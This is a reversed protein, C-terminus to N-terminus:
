ISSATRFASILHFRSSFLTSSKNNACPCFSRRSFAHCPSAFNQLLLCKRTRVHIYDQKPLDPPQANQEAPKRSSTEVEAKSGRAREDRCRTSAKLQKGDCDRAGINGSSKPSEADVNGDCNGEQGSHPHRAGHAWMVLIMM